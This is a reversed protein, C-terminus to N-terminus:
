RPITAGPPRPCAGRRECNLRCFYSWKPCSAFCLDCINPPWATMSRVSKFGGLRSKGPVSRGGPPPNQTFWCNNYGRVCDVRNSNYQEPFTCGYSVPTSYFEGGAYNCKGEVYDESHWDVSQTDALASGGVGVIALFPVAAVALFKTRFKLSDPKRM